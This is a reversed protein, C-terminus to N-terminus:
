ALSFLSILRNSDNVSRISLRSHNGPILDSTYFDTKKKEISSKRSSVITKLPDGELPDEELSSALVGISGEM